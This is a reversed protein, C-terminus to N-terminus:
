GMRQANILSLARGVLRTKKHGSRGIRRGGCNPAAKPVKGGGRRVEDNAPRKRAVLRRRRQGIMWEGMRGNVSQM